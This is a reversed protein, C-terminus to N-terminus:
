IIRRMEANGATEANLHDKACLGRLVLIRYILLM